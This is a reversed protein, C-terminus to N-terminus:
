EIISVFTIKTEIIKNIVTKICFYDINGTLLSTPNKLVQYMIKIQHQFSGFAAQGQQFASSRTSL